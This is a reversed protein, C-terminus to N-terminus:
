YDAYLNSACTGCVQRGLEACKTRAYNEDKCTFVTESKENYTMKKCISDQKVKCSSELKSHFLHLENTNNKKFLTFLNFDSM